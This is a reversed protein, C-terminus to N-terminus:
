VHVNVLVDCLLADNLSRFNGAGRVVVNVIGAGTATDLADVVVPLLTEIRATADETGPDAVILEATWEVMSGGDATAHFAFADITPLRLAPFEPQPEPYPYCNITPDAATVAACLAARLM